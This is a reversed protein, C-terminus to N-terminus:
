DAAKSAAALADATAQAAAPDNDASAESAEQDAAAMTVRAANVLRRVEGAMAALMACEGTTLGLPQGSLAHRLIVLVMASGRDMCDTLGNPPTDCNPRAISLLEGPQTNDPKNLLASINNILLAALEPPISFSKNQNASM